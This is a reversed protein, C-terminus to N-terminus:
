ALSKGVTEPEIEFHSLHLVATRDRIVLLQPSEHRVSFITEVSASLSRYRLLDLFYMRVGAWAQGSRDIRNLIMHSTSCRASHKYIIVPQTESEAQLSQLQEVTELPIWEINSM